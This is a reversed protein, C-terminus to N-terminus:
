IHGEGFHPKRIIRHVEDRTLGSVRALQPVTTHTTRFLYPILRAKREYSIASIGAQFWRQSTENVLILFEADPLMTRPGDILKNQMEAANQGGITKLFFAPDQEFAQELYSHDCFSDPVLEEKDDILWKVGDLRDGTHLIRERERKTLAAVALTKEPLNDTRFMARYGSWRYNSVNCGNDLANRPIYALANRVYWDTDLLIAKMDVGRLTAKKGYKRNFWMAYMKKVEQGFADADRQSVALVAVHCHNSVVAYIVIIVNKRHAAVCLIKVMADYDADDRFLVITKLGEMSIHFPHLKRVTGDPLERVAIRHM